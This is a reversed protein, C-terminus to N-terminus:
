RCRRQTLVLFARGPPLCGRTGCPPTDRRSRSGASCWPAQAQPDIMGNRTLVRHVTARSPAVALDRGALEHCIRRAGWRPHERRLECILAEVEADLKMPSTRPRRSRDALGTKGEATFRTRWTDLSQRTTGYRVAVEGIPSGGLVECVARYRYEVVAQQDM